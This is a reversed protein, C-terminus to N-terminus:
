RAVIRAQGDFNAGVARDRGARASRFGIRPTLLPSPHTAPRGGVARGHFRFIGGSTRSLISQSSAVPFIPLGLGIRIIIPM